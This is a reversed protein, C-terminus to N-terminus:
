QLDRAPNRCTWWTATDELQYLHNKIATLRFGWLGAEVGNTPTRESSLSFLQVSAEEERQSSAILSYIHNVSM